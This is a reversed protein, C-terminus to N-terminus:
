PHREAGYSAPDIDAGGALVSYLVILAGACLAVSLATRSGLM